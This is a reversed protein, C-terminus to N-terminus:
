LTIRQVFGGSQTFIQINRLKLDSVLVNKTDGDFAIGYPSQFKGNGTGLGGFTTIHSGSSSFKQIRHNGRDVVYINNGHDIAIGHPWNFQGNSSGLSGWETISDFDSTFKYVKHRNSFCIYVNANNDVAMGNAWKGDYKTIFVGKDTFKQIRKNGSDSVYVESKLPDVAIANPHNFEGDAIGVKGWRVIPWTTIPGTSRTFRQIRHNGTDAVFVNGSSYRVKIDMPTIFQGPDTGSSGFSSISLPIFKVTLIRPNLNSADAVLLRNGTAVSLRHISIGRSDTLVM